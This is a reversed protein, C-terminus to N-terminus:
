RVYFAVESVGPALKTVAGSAEVAEIEYVYRGQQLRSPLLYSFSRSAGVSFFRSASCHARVFDARAGNFLFCRRGVRRELSIRVDRLTGGPAVRVVGGLLRPAHRRAYVAGARVGTVSAVDATPTTAGGDGGVTTATSGNGGSDNTNTNTNSGGGGTTTTTEGPNAVAIWTETRISNPASARLLTQASAHTFTLTAEGSPDTVAEGGDGAVTAGAVPSPAGTKSYREVTVRAPVGVEAPSHTELELPPLEAGDREAVFLVRDGSELKADCAGVNSYKDDLWFSWFYISEFTHSEGEIEYIRYQLLGPDWPGNWNGATALNLAGLAGEGSCAHEPNGDKVVSAGNLTVQTPPLKTESLGEVRVSVTVAGASAVPLSLLGAVAVLVRFLSRM